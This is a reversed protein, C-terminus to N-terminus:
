FKIHNTDHTNYFDTYNQQQWKLLDANTSDIHTITGNEITLISGDNLTQSFALTKEFRWANSRYHELITLDVMETGVREVINPLRYHQAFITTLATIIKTVDIHPYVDTLNIVSSRVSAVGKSIIKLPPANLSQRLLTLDSNILLTSHHFAHTHTERFASGSIKKDHLILDHRQNIYVPANLTKLAQTIFMLNQTKDYSNKKCFFTFNLNGLDHFVTGGGSQRRVLHINNKQLFKLDCEVWPNQARGIVVCPNNQYLFLAPYAANKFLHQELTLNMFPDTVTSLYM